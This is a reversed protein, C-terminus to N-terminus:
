FLPGLSSVPPIRYSPHSLPSYLIPFSLDGFRTLATGALAVSAGFPGTFRSGRNDAVAFGDFRKREVTVVLESGVLESGSPRLVGTGSIGPLDNVLLLYRELLDSSCVDSSWDSIRM